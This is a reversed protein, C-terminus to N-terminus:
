VKGYIFNSSRPDKTWAAISLGNKDKDTILTTTSIIPDLAKKVTKDCLSWDIDPALPSISAECQPSFQGSCFYEIMSEKPLVVGHAFGPPLWIWESFDRATDVQMDYAIAKGYTPSNKRIDLAIDILHGFLCRVLKGMYPSWQFHMGRVTGPKSYAENMQGFEIGKMFDIAALDTKRFIETFYGRNDNFRAFKIVKIDPIALSKIDLIKM